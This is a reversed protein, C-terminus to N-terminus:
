KQLLLYVTFVSLIIGTFDAILASKLTHRTKKIGICGFYVALTYFTTETSGMMVSAIRGVLSDPGYKNLIDTVIAVSGSGSVPRLIALPFIEKPIKLLNLLPAFVQSIIEMAGSARFMSIGVMLGVLSPMIKITCELGEKAGETFADFVKVKRFIGYLVFGFIILPVSYESIFSM